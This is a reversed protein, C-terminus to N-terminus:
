RNWSPSRKTASAMQGFASDRKLESVTDRPAFMEYHRGGIDGTFQVLGAHSGGVSGGGAYAAVMPSPSGVFGGMAFGPMQLNNLGHFFNAGFASVARANVVFEGNSLRALISDSKESGPGKIFGGSAFGGVGFGTAKFSSGSGFLIGFLDVLASSIGLKDALAALDVQGSSKRRKNALDALDVQASSAGLSNALDALDVQASSAGLSNALDALDVQASGSVEGGGAFKRLRMNNIKHLFNAGYAAVAKANVVFEGHSLRALISDSTSSGPGEVEGGGAYAPAAGTESQSSPSSSSPAGSANGGGTIANWAKKAASAVADLANTIWDLTKQAADKMGDWLEPGVFQRLAEMLKGSLADTLQQFKGLIADIAAVAGKVAVAIATFTAAFPTIVAGIVKIWGPIPMLSEAFKAVIITALLTAGTFNTGFMTNVVAAVGDAAKLVLNFASVIGSAVTQITAWAQKVVAEVFAWPGTLSPFASLAADKIAAYAWVAYTKITEWAQASTEKVSGWVAGWDINRVYEKIDRFKQAFLGGLYQLFEVATNKWGQFTDLDHYLAINQLRRTASEAMEKVFNTMDQTASVIKDGFALAAGGAVGFAAVSLPSISSIASGLNGFATNLAALWTSGTKGINGLADSTNKEEATAAKAGSILPSFVNGLASGADSISKIAAKLGGVLESIVTNTSDSADDAADRTQEFAKEGASGVKDLQDVVEDAGDLVITQSFTNGSMEQQGEM